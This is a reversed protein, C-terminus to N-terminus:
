HCRKEWIPIRSGGSVATLCYAWRPPPIAAPAVPSHRCRRLSGSSPRHRAPPESHCLHHFRQPQPVGPM